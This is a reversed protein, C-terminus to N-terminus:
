SIIQYQKDHEIKLLNIQLNNQQLQIIIDHFDNYFFKKLCFNKICMVLMSVNM